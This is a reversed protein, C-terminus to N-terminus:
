INTNNAAPKMQSIWSSAVELTQPMILMTIRHDPGLGHLIEGLWLVREELGETVQVQGPQEGVPDVADDFRELLQPRLVAASVLTFPMVPRGPGADNGEDILGLRETGQEIIRPDLAERGTKGSVIEVVGPGIAIKIRRISVPVGFSEALALDQSEELGEGGPWGHLGM